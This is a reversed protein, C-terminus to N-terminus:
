HITLLTDAGVMSIEDIIILKIDAFTEKMIALKESSLPLYDDNKKTHLPLLFAAHCTYGSINYAAAGTPACVLVHNVNAQRNLAFIRNVTQVIAKVVHSKGVGAGGTLFLYFPDPKQIRHALTMKSAWEVIFQHLKYQKENLSLILEIWENSLLKDALVEYEFPTSNSDLQAARRRLDPSDFADMASNQVEPGEAEDEIRDKETEPAVIVWSEEAIGFEQMDDLASGVEEAFHEFNSRNSQITEIKDNYSEEYSGASIGREDRWPYYLLLQAHYYQQPQKKSSWQHYRVITPTRRRHMHGLNDKLVIHKMDQEDDDNEVANSRADNAAPQKSSTRYLSVFESFCMEELQNPRAPYRDIISQLFVDPDDDDLQKLINMPKFMRTRNEQLDTDVFVVQRSGQSLPLSLLRYVAEQASVERHTLFKQAVSRMSQKAGLHQSSSSVAKLVDGLTKEPKSVYSALYMVCSYVNTVFQVDLNAQWAKMLTRNYNNVNKEKPSRQLLIATQGGKTKVWHLADLYDKESVNAAALLEDVSNWESSEELKSYVLSLIGSYVQQVSKSPVEDLPKFVKTSKLPPRPFDFRCKSGPTKCAISHVHRQVLSILEALDADDEPLACTIMKDIFEQVEQETDKEISPADRVWALMHVHPSGRHQFEIRYKYDTIRGLPNLNPNMLIHKLFLQVRNDFHRAATVPNSRLYQCKEEWTMAQVEEPTLTVGQQEGIVKLTDFWKLDAASLTIFWTSPGLHRIMGLLDYFLKNFYAPSGRIKQMFHVGLDQRIFDRLNERIEGATLERQKGKRLAVSLSDQIEKAECRYQAFFIYEINSAFRIDHCLIRTQFYKKLSLKEKRAMSFGFKGSPLLQPFSLEESNEDSHFSKPRKNEGPAYNLILNTDSSIDKPQICSNFPLGSLRSREDEVEEDNENDDSAPENNDNSQNTLTDWLKSDNEISDNQWNENLTVDNYLPNKMVDKLIHLANEIKQPRINQLFVHGRYQIKRKLRVTILSDPSPVRPLVSLNQEPEIPINVVCGHVSRQKGRPLTVLKMFPIRRSIFIAELSNLDSLEHPVEDLELSNGISISPMKGKSM